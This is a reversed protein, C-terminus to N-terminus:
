GATVDFTASFAAPLTFAGFVQESVGLAPKGNKFSANWVTSKEKQGNGCSIRTSSGGHQSVLKASGRAVGGSTRVLLTASGHKGHKVDPPPAHVDVSDNRTAGSPAPLRESRSADIFGRGKGATDGGFSLSGDGNGASWSVSKACRQTSAGLCTTFPQGFASDTTGTFSVKSSKSGVTGWKHKGSSHTNFVFTGAVKLKRSTIHASASCRKTVTGGVSSINLKVSGYPSIASTPVDLTGDGKGNLTFAGAPLSFSWDHSEAGSQLGVSMTGGGQSKNADVFMTLKKHTSSTVHAFVTIAQAEPNKANPAAAVSGGSMAAGVAFAMVGAVALSRM